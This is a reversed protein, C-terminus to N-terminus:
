RAGAKGRTMADVYQMADFKALERDSAGLTEFVQKGDADVSGYWLGATNILWITFGRYRFM